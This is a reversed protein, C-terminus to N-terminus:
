LKSEQIYVPLICILRTLFKIMPLVVKLLIMSKDHCDREVLQLMIWSNVMM